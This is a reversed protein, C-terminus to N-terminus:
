NLLWLERINRGNTYRAELFFKKLGKFLHFALSFLIISKILLNVALIIILKLTIVHRM